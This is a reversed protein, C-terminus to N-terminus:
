GSGMLLIVVLISLFPFLLGILILVGIVLLTHRLRKKKLGIQESPIPVVHLKILIIIPILLLLGSAIMDGAIDGTGQSQGAPPYFLEFLGITSALIPISIYSIARITFIAFRKM